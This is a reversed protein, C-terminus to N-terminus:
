LNKHYKCALNKYKYGLEGSILHTISNKSLIWYEKGKVKIQKETVM